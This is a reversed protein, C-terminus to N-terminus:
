GAHLMERLCKDEVFSDPLPHSSNLPLRAIAHRAEQQLDRQLNGSGFVIGGAASSLAMPKCAVQKRKGLKAEKRAEIVDDMGENKLM